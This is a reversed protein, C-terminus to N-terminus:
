WKWCSFVAGHSGSGALVQSRAANDGSVDGLLRFTMGTSSGCGWAVTIAHRRDEPQDALYRYGGTCFGLVNNKTTKLPLVILDDQKITSRLAWMQGVANAIKGPHEGALLDQGIKALQARSGM